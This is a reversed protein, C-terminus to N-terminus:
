EKLPEAVTAKPAGEEDETEEMDRQHDDESTIILVVIGKFLEFGVACIFSIFINRTDNPGPVNNGGSTWVTGLFVAFGLCFSSSSFRLLRGPAALGLVPDIAGGTCKEGNQEDVKQFSLNDRIQKPDLWSSLMAQKSVSTRVGLYGYCLSVAWFGRALWHATAISPLALATLAVQTFVAAQCRFVFSLM